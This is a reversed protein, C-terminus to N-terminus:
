CLVSTIFRVLLLLGRASAGLFGLGMEGLTTDLGKPLEAVFDSIRGPTMALELRYADVQKDRGAM